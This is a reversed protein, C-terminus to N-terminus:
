KSQKYCLKAFSFKKSICIIDNDSTTPPSPKNEPLSVASIISPSKSSILVEPSIQPQLPSLTPKQVAPKIQLLPVSPINSPILSKDTLFQIVKLFLFNVNNRTVDQTDIRVFDYKNHVKFLMGTNIEKFYCVSSDTITDTIKIIEPVFFYYANDKQAIVTHNRNNQCNIGIFTHM